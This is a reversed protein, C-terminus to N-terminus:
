RNFCLAKTGAIRANYVHFLWIAMGDFRDKRCPISAEIRNEKFYDRMRMPIGSPSEGPHM